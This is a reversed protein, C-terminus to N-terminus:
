LVAQQESTEVDLPPVVLHKDFGFISPFCSEDGIFSEVFWHDHEEAESVGGGGELGHHVSYEAIEDIFSADGNIHIIYGDM